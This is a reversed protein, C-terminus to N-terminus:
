QDLLTDHTRPGDPRAWLPRGTRGTGRRDWLPEEQFPPGRSVGMSGRHQQQCWGVRCSCQAVRGARNRRENLYAARGEIGIWDLFDLVTPSGGSLHLQAAARLALDIAALRAYAQWVTGLHRPFVRAMRPQLFVRLRDWRVAHWQLTEFVAQSGPVGRHGKPGVAMGLGSLAESIAENIETRSCEKVRNDLRGSFYRSATKSRLRPDSIGLSKVLAGLIQGSTPLSPIVESELRKGGITTGDGSLDASTDPMRGTM